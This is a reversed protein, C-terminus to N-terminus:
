GSRTLRDLEISLEVWQDVLGKLKEYNAIKARVKALHERRVSESTSRGKRTYSLQHYPGHRQPPDAKCRCRPTGCVNYQESLTGPRLDPLAALQRKVREIRARLERESAM